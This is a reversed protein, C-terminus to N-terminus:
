ERQGLNNIQLPEGLCDTRRQLDSWEKAFVLDHDHYHPRNEKMVKDIKPKLEDYVKPMAGQHKQIAIVAHSLVYSIM